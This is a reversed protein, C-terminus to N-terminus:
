PRGAKRTDAVAQHWASYAELDALCWFSRAVFRWGLIDIVIWANERAQKRLIQPVGAKRWEPISDLEAIISKMEIQSVWM